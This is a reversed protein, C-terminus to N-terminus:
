GRDPFRMTKGVGRRNDGNMIQFRLPVVVSKSAASLSVDKARGIHIPPVDTQDALLIYKEGWEIVCCDCNFTFETLLSAGSTPVAAILWDPIPDGAKFIAAIHPSM